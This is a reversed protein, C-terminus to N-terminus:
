VWHSDISLDSDFWCFEVIMRDSPFGMREAHNKVQLVDTRFVGPNTRHGRLTAMLTLREGEAKFPNRSLRVDKNASKLVRDLAVWQAQTIKFQLHSEFYGEEWARDGNPTTEIKLRICTFGAAELIDELSRAYALADYDTGKFQASTMVHVDTGAPLDTQFQIVIPKIGNAKCVDQFAAVDNTAVTIHIEHFDVAGSDHVFPCDPCGVCTM